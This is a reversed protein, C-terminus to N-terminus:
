FVGGAFYSLHEFLLPPPGFAKQVINFFSCKERAIAERIRVALESSSVLVAQLVRPDVAQLLVPDALVAQLLGPDLASNDQDM